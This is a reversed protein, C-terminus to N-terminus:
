ERMAAQRAAGFAEGNFTHTCCTCRVPLDDATLKPAVLTLRGTADVRLGSWFTSEETTFYPKEELDSRAVMWGIPEQTDLRAVAEAHVESWPRGVNKLLFRFLPTYDRGHRLGGRVKGRVGDEAAAKVRRNAERVRPAGHFNGRVGRTRTNVKRWLPKQEYGM